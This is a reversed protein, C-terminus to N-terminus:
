LWERKGKNGWMNFCLTVAIVTMDSYGQKELIEVFVKNVIGDKKNILRSIYPASTGVMQSECAFISSVYPISEEWKGNDKTLTGLEKYLESETM